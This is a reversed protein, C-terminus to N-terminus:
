GTEGYGDSERSRFIYVSCLPFPFLSFYFGARAGVASTNRELASALTVIGTQSCIRSLINSFARETTVQSKCRSFCFEERGTRAQREKRGGAAEDAFITASFFALDFHRPHHKQGSTHHFLVIMVTATIADIDTRVSRPPSSMVRADARPGAFCLAFRPDRTLQLESM